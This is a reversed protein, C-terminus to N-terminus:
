EDSKVSNLMLGIFIFLMSFGVFLITIQMSSASYEYGWAGPNNSKLLVWASLLLHEIILIVLYKIIDQNNNKLIINKQHVTHMAYLFFLFVTMIPLTIFAGLSSVTYVKIFVVSSSLLYYLAFVVKSYNSM